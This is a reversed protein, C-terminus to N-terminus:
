DEGEEEEDDGLNMTLKITGTVGLEQKDRWTSPQRNKLWSMAAGVDPLVVATFPARIIQGEYQFIKESDYTYGTARKYLSEAVEADALDKGSRLSALFEPFQKKWSNITTKSVGFHGALDKDTYGLLCLKRAEDAYEPRYESPRGGAM